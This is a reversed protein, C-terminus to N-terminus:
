ALSQLTLSVITTQKGRRITLKRTQGSEKLLDQIQRLAYHDTSDGDIEAIVDGERLGAKDAPSGLVVGHM